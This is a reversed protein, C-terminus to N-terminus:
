HTQQESLPTHGKWSGSEDKYRGGGGGASVADNCSGLAIQQAPQSGEEGTGWRNERWGTEALESDGSFEEFKVNGSEKQAEWRSLMQGAFKEM